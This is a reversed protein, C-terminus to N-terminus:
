PCCAAVARRVEAVIADLKKVFAQGDVTCVLHRGQRECRVIGVDRLASIHRSIVSRDQPLAAAVSEIDCPGHLILFKLLDIRAPESLAKFLATDFQGALTELARVKRASRAAVMTADKIHMTACM